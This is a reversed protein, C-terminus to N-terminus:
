EYETSTDKNAGGALPWEERFGQNLSPTRIVPACPDRESLRGTWKVDVKKRQSFNKGRRNEGADSLSQGSGSGESHCM